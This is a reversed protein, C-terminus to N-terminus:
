ERKSLIKKDLYIAILGTQLVALFVFVNSNTTTIGGLKAEIFLSIPAHMILWILKQNFDLPFSTGSLRYQEISPNIYPLVIGSFALLWTLLLDILVVIIVIKHKKITNLM